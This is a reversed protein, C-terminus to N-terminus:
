NSELTKKRLKEYEEENILDKDKLEKLRILENQIRSFDESNNTNLNNTKVPISSESEDIPLILGAIIYVIVPIGTLFLSVLVFIVRWLGASGRGSNALGQCLGFIIAGKKARKFGMSNNNNSSPISNPTSSKFKNLRGQSPEVFSDNTLTTGCSTCFKSSPKNTLGCQPCLM